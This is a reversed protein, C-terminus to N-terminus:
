IKKIMRKRVTCVCQPNFGEWVRGVELKRYVM